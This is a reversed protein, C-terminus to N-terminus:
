YILKQLLVWKSVLRMYKEDGIVIQDAKLIIM